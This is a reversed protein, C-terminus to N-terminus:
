DVNSGCARATFQLVEKWAAGEVNPRGGTIGSEMWFQCTFDVMDANNEARQIGEPTADAVALARGAATILDKTARLSQTDETVEEKMLAEYVGDTLEDLKVRQLEPNPEDTGPAVPQQTAKGQMEIMVQFEYSGSYQASPKGDHCWVTVNPYESDESSNAPSINDCVGQTQLYAVIARDLKSRLSM